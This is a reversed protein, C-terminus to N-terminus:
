ESKAHLREATTLAVKNRLYVPQAEQAIVYQASTARDAINLSYKAHPMALVASPTGQWELQTGCVVPLRTQDVYARVEDMRALSQPVLEIWGGNQRKLHTWYVEGMRADLICICEDIVQQEFAAEAQSHLSGIAVVPIDLGYAIGQVVGCATRVGTFAGPGCGYAILEVKSLDIKFAELLEHIAPILGHSHTNVGSLEVSKQENNHLLAVSAIETSTELALITKM